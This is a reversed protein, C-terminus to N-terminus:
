VAEENGNNFLEQVRAIMHEKSKRRDLDVGFMDAAFTELQTKTFSSFDEQGAAVPGAAEEDPHGLEQESAGEQVIELPSVWEDTSLGEPGEQEDSAIVPAETSEEDCQPKLGDIEDAEQAVEVRQEALREELDMADALRIRLSEEGPIYTGKGLAQELGQKVAWPPTDGYGTLQLAEKEANSLYV